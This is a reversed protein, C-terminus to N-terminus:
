STRDSVQLHEDILNIVPQLKLDLIGELRSRVGDEDRIQKEAEEEFAMPLGSAVAAAAAALGGSEDNRGQEDGQEDGQGQGRGQGKAVTNHAM